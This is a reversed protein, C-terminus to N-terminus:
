SSTLSAVAYACRTPFCSACMPVLFWIRWEDKLAVLSKIEEIAEQYFHKGWRYNGMRTPPASACSGDSRVVLHSPTLGVCAVWGVLM